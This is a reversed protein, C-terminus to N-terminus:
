QMERVHACIMCTKKDCQSKHRKGKAISKVRLKIKITAENARSKRMWKVNFVIWKSHWWADRKRSPRQHFPWINGFWTKNANTTEGKFWRQSHDTPLFLCMIRPLDVYLNCTIIGVTESKPCRPNFFDSLISNQKLWNVDRSGEFYINFLYHWVRKSPSTQCKM